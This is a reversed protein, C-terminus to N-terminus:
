AEHHERCGELDHARRTPGEDGPYGHGWGDFDARATRSFLELRPGPSMSAVTDYFAQPKASHVTRPAFVVNPVNRRLVPLRGRTAFICQETANRYNRGMGIRVRKMDNTMKVWTIIQKNDTRFGWARVVSHAEEVFGNPCWLYLHADAAAAASVEEGMALIERVSMTEYHKAAGRGPGPLKDGFSWAPDAVVTHYGGEVTPIPTSTATV